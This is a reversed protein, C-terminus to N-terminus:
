VFLGTRKKSFPKSEHRGEERGKREAAVHRHSIEAM